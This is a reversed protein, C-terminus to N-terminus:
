VHLYEDIRRQYEVAIQPLTRTKTLEQHEKGSAILTYKDDLYVRYRIVCVESENTVVLYPSDPDELGGATRLLELKAATLQSPEPPLWHNTKLVLRERIQNSRGPNLLAWQLHKLLSRRESPELPKGQYTAVDEVVRLAQEREPLGTLNDNCLQIIQAHIQVHLGRAQETSLRPDPAFKM